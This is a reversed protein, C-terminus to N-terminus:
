PENSTGRVGMHRQTVSSGISIRTTKGAGNCTVLELVISSNVQKGRNVVGQQKMRSFWGGLAKVGPAKYREWELSVRLM